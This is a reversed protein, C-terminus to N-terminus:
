FLQRQMGIRLFSSSHLESYRSESDIKIYEHKPLSILFRMTVSGCNNFSRYDIIQTVASRMHSLM